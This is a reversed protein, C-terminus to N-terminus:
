LGLMAIPVGFVLAMGVLAIVFGVGVDRTTFPGQPATERETAYEADFGDGHDDGHDGGHGAGHQDSDHTGDGAHDDQESMGRRADM